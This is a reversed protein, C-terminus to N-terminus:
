KFIWSQFSTGMNSGYIPAPFVTEVPQAITYRSSLLPLMLQRQLEPFQHWLYNKASNADPSIKHVKLLEQIALAYRDVNQTM